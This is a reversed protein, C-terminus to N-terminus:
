VKFVHPSRRKKKKRTIWQYIRFVIQYMILSIIVTYILEPLINKRLYFFFNWKRQPLFFILYTLIHYICDNVFVIILPLFSAEAFFLVHFYGNIYGLFMYFFAYVGLAGGYMLDILLGCLFGALMAPISGNIIAISVVLLLIINPVAGFFPFFPFISTQLLFSIIILVGIIGIKKAEDKM